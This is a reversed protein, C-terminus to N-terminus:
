AEARKEPVLEQDVNSEIWWFVEDPDKDMEYIAKRTAAIKRSHFIIPLTTFINSKRERFGLISLDESTLSKRGHCVIQLDSIASRIDGQAFRALNKLVVDDTEVGESRSIERLRKEISPAMVKSFKIVKCVKRLPALKPKWPDNAIIFVPFRSVRVVKIISSVAGRERGSIGDVEDILLLRGRGSLDHTQSASLLMSEIQSANRSDSANLRLISLDKEGALTEVMLTKGVGPSGHLFAALGPRWSGMFDMIDKKAKGQGVIRSIEMPKYKDVWIEM